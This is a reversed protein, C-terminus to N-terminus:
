FYRGDPTASQLGLHWTTVENVYFTFIFSSDSSQEETFSWDTHIPNLLCTIHCMQQLTKPHCSGPEGVVSCFISLISASTIKTNWWNYKERKKVWRSGDCWQLHAFCFRWSTNPTLIRLSVVAFVRSGSNQCSVRCWGPWGPTYTHQTRINTQASQWAESGCCDDSRLRHTELLISGGAPVLSSRRISINTNGSKLREWTSQVLVWGFLNRLWSKEMVGSLGM